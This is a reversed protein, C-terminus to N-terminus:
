AREELRLIRGWVAHHNTLPFLIRVLIQVVLNNWSLTTVVRITHKGGGQLAGTLTPVRPSTLDPQLAKGGSMPIPRGLLMEDVHMRLKRIERGTTPYCRLFNRGNYAVNEFVM